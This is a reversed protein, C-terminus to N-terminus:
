TQACCHVSNLRALLYSLLLTPMNAFDHLSEPITKLAGVAQLMPSAPYPACLLPACVQAAQPRKVGRKGSSGATGDLGPVQKGGKGGAAGAAGRAAQQGRESAPVGRGHAAEKKALKRGTQKDPKVLYFQKRSVNERTRYINLRRAAM